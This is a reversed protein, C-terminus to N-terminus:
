FLEHDFNYFFRYKYDYQKVVNMQRLYCNVRYVSLQHPVLNEVEKFKKGAYHADGKDLAKVAETYLDAAKEENSPETIATENKNKTSGPLVNWACSFLFVPLLLILFGKLM